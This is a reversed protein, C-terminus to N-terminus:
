NPKPTCRAFIQRGSFREGSTGCPFHAALRPCYGSGELPNPPRRERVESRMAVNIASAWTKGKRTNRTKRPELEQDCNGRGVEERIVRSGPGGKDPVWELRLTTGTRTFIFKGPPLNKAAAAKVEYPRTGEPQARWEGAVLVEMEGDVIEMAVAHRYHARLIKQDSVFGVALPIMAVVLVFLAALLDAHLAGCSSCRSFNKARPNM